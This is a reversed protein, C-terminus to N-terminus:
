DFVVRVSPAIQMKISQRYVPASKPIFDKQEM